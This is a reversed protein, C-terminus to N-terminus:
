KTRWCSQGGNMNSKETETHSITAFWPPFLWVAVSTLIYVSLFLLYSSSVGGQRHDGHSASGQKAWNKVERWRWVEGGRGRKKNILVKNQFDLWSCTSLIIKEMMCTNIQWGTRMETTPSWVPSMHVACNCDRTAIIVSLLSCHHACRLYHSILCM